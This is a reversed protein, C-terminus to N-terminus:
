RAVTKCSGTEGREALLATFCFSARKTKLRAAGQRAAPRNIFPGVFMPAGGRLRLHADTRRAIQRQHEQIKIARVLRMAFSVKNGHAGIAPHTVGSTAAAAMPADHALQELWEMASVTKLVGEEIVECDNLYQNVVGEHSWNFAYGLLGTPNQPLAGVRLRISRVKDFQEGLHAGVIGVFGPALGCQPAMIGKSTQALQRVHRTTQVDETLDFYHVGLAHAASSVSKNLHYPLCSLM